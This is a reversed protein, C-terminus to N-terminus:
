ETPQNTEVIPCVIAALKCLAVLASEVQQISIMSKIPEPVHAHVFEAASIVGAHLKERLEGNIEFQPQM